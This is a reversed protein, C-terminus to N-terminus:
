KGLPLIIHFLDFLPLALSRRFDVITRLLGVKIEVSTSSDTRALAISIVEGGVEGGGCVFGKNVM